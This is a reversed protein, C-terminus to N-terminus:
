RSSPRSVRRAPAPSASRPALRAFTVEGDDFTIKVLDADDRSRPEMKVSLYSAYAGRGDIKTREIM